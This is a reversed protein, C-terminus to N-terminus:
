LNIMDIVSCNYRKEGKNLYLYPFDTGWKQNSGETEFKQRLFNSFKKYHVGKAYHLKKPTM